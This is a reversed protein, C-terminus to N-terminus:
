VPKMQAWVNDAVKLYLVLDGGLFESLNNLITGANQINVSAVSQRCCIFVYQGLLSTSNNPLNINLSNLPGSPTLYMLQNTSTNAFNVTSGDAPSSALYTIGPASSNAIAASSAAIKALLALADDGQNPTTTLPYDAM